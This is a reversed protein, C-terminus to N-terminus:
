CEAGVSPHDASSTNGARAALPRTAGIVNGFTIDPWLLPTPAGPHTSRM